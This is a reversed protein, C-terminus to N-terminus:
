SPDPGDGKEGEPEPQVAPRKRRRILNRAAALEPARGLFALLFYVAVGALTAGLVRVLLGASSVPAAPDHVGAILFVVVAMIGSWVLNKALSWSINRGDIRKLRRRAMVMLLIFNVLSALTSALALGVYALPGMLMVALFMNLVLSIAAMKAPTRTDQFSYFVRVVVQVASLPILGAAYAVLTWATAATDAPGFQGRQFFLHVFPLALVIMGVAAPLTIFFILRISFSFTDRLGELNNQAAQRSMSPLVATGMAVAFVGLPFQMIRDAYYLYSVSGEPLFSALLTNVFVSIQYMAAGLTAPVMLRGIQRIAPHGLEGGFGLLGKEKALWPIQLLLQLVGGILVGVALGMVPPDVRPSILLVSAIIGVNLLVPSLAPAAFRELSNLVGMALAVLGVLFIYPFMIRTLLVTLAFKDPQHTFGPAFAWVIWPSALIGVITVGSLVMSVVTLTSRAMRFADSRSRQTLYETFVPIFSVTLAGEALLRRLLNPIRFAVFFADAAMGAGFFYATVLDRIFGLIRSLLTASGVVGAARAIKAKESM